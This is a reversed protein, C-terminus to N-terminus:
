REESKRPKIGKARVAKWRNIDAIIFHYSTSANDLMHPFM